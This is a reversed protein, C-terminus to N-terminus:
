PIPLNTAADQILEAYPLTMLLTCPLQYRTTRFVHNLAADVQVAIPRLPLTCLGNLFTISQRVFAARMVPSVLLLMRLSAIQPVQIKAAPMAPTELPLM